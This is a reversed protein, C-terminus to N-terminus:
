SPPIIVQREACALKDFDRILHQLARREPYFLRRPTTLKCVMLPHQWLIAYASFPKHVRWQWNAPLLGGVRAVLRCSRRASQCSRKVWARVEASAKRKVSANNVVGIM